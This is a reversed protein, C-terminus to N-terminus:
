SNQIKVHIGSLLNRLAIEVAMFEADTPDNLQDTRYYMRARNISVKAMWLLERILKLQLEDM